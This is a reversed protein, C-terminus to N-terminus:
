GAKKRMKTVQANIWQSLKGAMTEEVGSFSFYRRDRRETPSLTFRINERSNLDGIFVQCTQDLLREPIPNELSLGGLSIDRTFTRFTLQENRIIVRFRIEYRPHRRRESGSVLATSISPQTNGSPPAPPPTSPSGIPPAGLIIPAAKEAPKAAAKPQAVAQQVIPQHTIAQQHRPPPLPPPKSVNKVHDKFQEVDLVAKWDEWGTQWAFWSERDAAPIKKAFEIAKELSMEESQFSTESNCFMWSMENQSM